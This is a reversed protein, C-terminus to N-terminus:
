FPLALLRRGLGLVSVVRLGLGPRVMPVRCLEVLARLLGLLRGRLRM